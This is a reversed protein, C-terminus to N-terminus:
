YTQSDSSRSDSQQYKIGIKIKNKKTDIKDKMMSIVKILNNPSNKRKANPFSNTSQIHSQEQIETFLFSFFINKFKYSTKHIVLFTIM